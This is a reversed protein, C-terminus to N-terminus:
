RYVPIAGDSRAKKQYADSMCVENLDKMQVITCGRPTRIVWSIVRHHLLLCCEIVHMAEQPQRSDSDSATLAFFFYLPPAEGKWYLPPADTPLLLCREIVHPMM